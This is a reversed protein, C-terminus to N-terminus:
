SARPLGARLEAAPKFAVTAGAPLDIAEGTRPNRGIRAATVRVTFTGFGPLTVRGDRQIAAAIEALAREIVAAVQAETIEGLPRAASRGDDDGQVSLVREVLERRTM